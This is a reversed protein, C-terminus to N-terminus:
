GCYNSGYAAANFPVEVWDSVYGDVSYRGYSQELYWNAMSPDQAKNYLLNDYHAQSFDATWITTNDVSRDPEPIQQPAPRAHRQPRIARTRITPRPGFEGLM